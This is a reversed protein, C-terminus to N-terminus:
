AAVVFEVQVGDTNLVHALKRTISQYLRRTLWVKALHSGVLVYATSREMGVLMTEKLWTTFTSAPVQEKLRQLNLNWTMERTDTQTPENERTTREQNNERNYDRDQPTVTQQRQTAVTQERETTVTQNRQTAVPQPQEPTAGNQHYQEPYASGGTQQNVGGAGGTQEADSATQARQYDAIVALLRDWDIRFHYMNRWGGRKLQIVGLKLLKKRATQQERKTLGTEQAMETESKYIWGEENNGKDSLFMLQSLYAGTTVGGVIRALEPSYAVLRHPLNEKVTDRQNKARQKHPLLARLGMHYGNRATM